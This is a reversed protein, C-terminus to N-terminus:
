RSSAPKIGNHAAKINSQQSAAYELYILNEPHSLSELELIRSHYFCYKLAKRMIWLDFADFVPVGYPYNFAVNRLSTNDPEILGVVDVAFSLLPILNYFRDRQDDSIDDIPDFIGTEKMIQELNNKILGDGKLWWNYYHDLLSCSFDLWDNINGVTENWISANLYTQPEYLNKISKNYPYSIGISKIFNDISEIKPNFPINNGNLISNLSESYSVDGKTLLEGARLYASIAYYPNLHITPPVKVLDTSECELLYHAVNSAFIVDQEGNFSKKLETKDFVFKNFFASSTCYGCM